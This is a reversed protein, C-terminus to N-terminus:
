SLERVVGGRGGWFFHKPLGDIPRDAPENQALSGHDVQMKQKERSQKPPRCSKKKVFSLRDIQGRDKEQHKTKQFFGIEASRTEIEISLKFKGACKM